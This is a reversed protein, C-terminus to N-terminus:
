RKLATGEMVKHGTPQPSGGIPEETVALAKMGAVLLESSFQLSPKGKAEDSFTGANIVVPVKDRILWLQYTRGAPAAPLDSPFFVLRSDDAILAVGSGTQGAGAARLQVLSVSRSRLFSIIQSYQQIGKKQSDVISRYSAIESELSQLKTNFAGIETSLQNGGPDRQMTVADYAKRSQRDAVERDRTAAALLTTTQSLRKGLDAAKAREENLAESMAVQSQRARQLDRLLYPDQVSVISDRGPFVAPANRAAAVLDRLANNESELQKYSSAQQEIRAQAVSVQSKIQSQGAKWSLSGAGAVILIGAAIRMWQRAKPRRFMQYIGPRRAVSLVRERLVPSPEGVTRAQLRETLAAFVYWFELADKIEASCSECGERVHEQIQNRELGDLTGLVYYAYEESTFQCSL